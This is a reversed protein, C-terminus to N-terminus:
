WRAGARRAARCPARRRGADDEEAEEVGRDDEIGLLRGVIELAIAAEDGADARALAGLFIEIIHQGPDGHDAGGIEGQDAEHGFKQDRPRADGEIEAAGAQQDDDVHRHVRHGLDLAVQDGVLIAVQDLLRLQLAASPPRHALPTFMM